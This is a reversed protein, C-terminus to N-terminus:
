RGMQTITQMIDSTTTFVRSNAQIARQALIMSSLEESLDVNSAELGGSAIKGCGMDGAVTFVIDGTNPGASYLNNGVSLLGETNTVTAMQIVFNAPEAVSTDVVCKNGNIKTGQASTFVFSYSGTVPDPEVSLTSGDKYTVGLAGDTGITQSNMATSKSTLDTVHVSYDLVNSVYNGTGVSTGHTLTGASAVFNSTGATLTISDNAANSAFQIAGSSNVTATLNTAGLQANIATALAGASAYPGALTILHSGATDAITFNGATVAAAQANTFTQTTETTGVTTTEKGVGTQTLFNSSNSTPTTFTLVDATSASKFTMTGDANATLTIGATSSNAALQTNIKNIMNAVTGSSDVTISVAAGGNVSLQFNGDTIPSDTGNLAFVTSSAAGTALDTGSVVATIATPIKVTNSSSTTSLNTDTGLVKYGDSTVLNGNEDISFNGARTYYTTGDTAQVSFFGPGNIMLDTNKGTSNWSGTSFDTSVASVQTGVGIQIPNTGGSTSTAVSGYSLTTSYVDSFQVSSAKFAITNINAVNNSIVSLQTTAAAIGGMATYLSQSM